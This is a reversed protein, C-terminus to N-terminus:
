EPRGGVFDRCAHRQRPARHNPHFFAMVTLDISPVELLLSSAVVHSIIPAYALRTCVRITQLLNAKRDKHPKRCLYFTPVPAVSRCANSNLSPPSDYPTRGGRCGKFHPHGHLPTHAPQPSRIAVLLVLQRSHPTMPNSVMYEYFVGSSRFMSCAGLIEGQRLLVWYSVTYM